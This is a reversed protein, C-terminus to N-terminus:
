SLITSARQSNHHSTVRGFAGLLVRIRNRHRTRRKAALLLSRPLDRPRTERLCNQRPSEKKNRKTPPLATSAKGPVEHRAVFAKQAESRREERGSGRGAEEKWEQKGRKRARIHVRGNTNKSKWTLMKRFLCRPSTIPIATTTTRRRTFINGGRPEPECGEESV